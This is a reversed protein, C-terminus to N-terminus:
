KDEGSILQGATPGSKIDYVKEVRNGAGNNKWTGDPKASKGPSGYHEGKKIISSVTM